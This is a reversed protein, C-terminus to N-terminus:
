AGKRNVHRNRALDFAGSHLFPNATTLYTWTTSPDRHGLLLAVAALDHTDNWLHTARSRRLSHLTLAVGDGLAGKAQLRRVATSWRHQQGPASLGVPGPGIAQRQGLGCFLAGPGIPRVALWEDLPGVPDLPGDRPRLVFDDPDGRQNWKSHPHHLLYQGGGQPVLHALAIRRQSSHRLATEYALNYQASDRRAIQLKQAKKYAVERVAAPNAPPAPRGPCPAIGLDSNRYPDAHLNANLLQGSRLRLLAEAARVPCLLPDPHRRLVVSPESSGTPAHVIVVSGRPELHRPRVLQRDQASWTLAVSLVFEAHSAAPGPSAEGLQISIAALTEIDHVPAQGHRRVVRGHLQLYNRHVNRATALTEPPLERGLATLLAEVKKTPAMAEHLSSVYTTVLEAAFDDDPETGSLDLWEVFGLLAYRDQALTTPALGMAGTAYRRAAARAAEVDGGALSARERRRATM